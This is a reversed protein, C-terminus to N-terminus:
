VPTGFMPKSDKGVGLVCAVQRTYKILTWTNEKPNEFLMFGSGDQIDQGSWVPKEGFKQTISELVVELRDCLSPHMYQFAQASAVSHTLCFLFAMATKRM